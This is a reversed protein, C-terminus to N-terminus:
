HQAQSLWQSLHWREYDVLSDQKPATLHKAAAISLGTSFSPRAARRGKLGHRAMSAIVSQLYGKAVSSM